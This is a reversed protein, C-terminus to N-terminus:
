CRKPGEGIAPAFRRDLRQPKRLVPVIPMLRDNIVALDYPDNRTEIEATDFEIAQVFLSTEPLPDLSCARPKNRLLDFM